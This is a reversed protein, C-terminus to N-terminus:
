IYIYTYIVIHWCAVMGVRCTQSQCGSCHKGQVLSGQIGRKAGRVEAQLTPLTLDPVEASFASPFLREARNIRCCTGPQQFACLVPKATPKARTKQWRPTATKLKMLGPIYERPNRPLPTIYSQGFGDDVSRLTGGSHHKFTGAIHSTLLSRGSKLM